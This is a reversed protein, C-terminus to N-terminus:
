KGANELKRKLRRKYREDNKMALKDKFMLYEADSMLDDISQDINTKYVVGAAVSPLIKDDDYDVCRTKVKEIFKEAEDQQANPILVAFVDGDIRGVVYEPKSEFKIFNSITKILRDSVEDGFNDNCVKWDNINFNVVAVPLAESKDVMALKDRFFDCNLMGTLEDKQSAAYNELKKSELFRLIEVRTMKGTATASPKKDGIQTLSISVTFDQALNDMYEILSDIGGQSDLSYKKEGLGMM